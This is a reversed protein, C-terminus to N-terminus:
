IDHRVMMLDIDNLPQIKTRRAFSGYFLFDGTAQPPTADNRSLSTIQSTLNDRSARASRTEEPDLDVRNERFQRFATAVTTAM